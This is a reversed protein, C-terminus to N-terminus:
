RYSAECVPKKTISLKKHDVVLYNDVVIERTQPPGLSCIGRAVCENGYGMNLSIDSIRMFNWVLLLSSLCVYAQVHLTYHRENATIRTCFFDYVLLLSLCWMSTQLAIDDIHLTQPQIESSERVSYSNFALAKEM